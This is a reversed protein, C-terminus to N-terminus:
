ESARESARQFGPRTTKVSTFILKLKFEYSFILKLTFEYVTISGKKSKQRSKTALLASFSPSKPFLLFQHSRWFRHKANTLKSRM